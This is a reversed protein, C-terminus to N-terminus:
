WKEGAFNGFFDSVEKFNFFDEESVDRIAHFKNRWSLPIKEHM